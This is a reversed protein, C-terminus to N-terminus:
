RVFVVRQGGGRLTYLGFSPHHHTNGPDYESKVLDPYNATLHFIVATPSVFLTVEVCALHKRM